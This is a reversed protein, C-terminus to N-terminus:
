VKQLQEVSVIRPNGDLKQITPLLFNRVFDTADRFGEQELKKVNFKIKVIHYKKDGQVYSDQSTVVTIRTLARIDNLLETFLTEYGSEKHVVFMKLTVSYLYKTQASPNIEETLLAKDLFQKRTEIIDAM